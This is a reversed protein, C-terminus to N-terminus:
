LREGEGDRICFFFLVEVRRVFCDMRYSKEVVTSVRPVLIYSVTRDLEPVNQDQTLLTCSTRFFLGFMMDVASQARLLYSWRFETRQLLLVQMAKCMAHVNICIATLAVCPHSIFAVYAVAQKALM